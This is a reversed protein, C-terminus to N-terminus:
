RWGPSAEVIISQSVAWGAQRWQRGSHKLMYLQDALHLHELYDIYFRYLLLSVLPYRVERIDTIPEIGYVRM